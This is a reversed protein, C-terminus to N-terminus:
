SISSRKYWSPGEVLPMKLREALALVQLSNFSFSFEPSSTWTSPSDTKTAAATMVTHTALYSLERPWHCRGEELFCHTKITPLIEPSYFANELLSCKWRNTHVSTICHGPKWMCVHAAEWSPAGKPVQGYWAVGLLFYLSTWRCPLQSTQVTGFLMASVASVYAYFGKSAAARINKTMESHLSSAASPKPPSTGSSPLQEALGLRPASRHERSGWGEGESWGALVLSLPFAAALDLCLPQPPHPIFSTILGM